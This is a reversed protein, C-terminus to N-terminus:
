TNVPNVSNTGPRRLQVLDLHGGQRHSRARQEGDIAGQSLLRAHEGIRQRAAGTQGRRDRNPRLDNNTDTGAHARHRTM